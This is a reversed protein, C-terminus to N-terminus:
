VLERLREINTLRITEVQLDKFIAITQEHLDRNAPLPDSIIAGIMPEAGNERVIDYAVWAIHDRGRIIDDRTPISFPLPELAILLHENRPSTIGLDLTNYGHRVRLTPREVIREKPLQWNSLARRVKVRIAARDVVERRAFRIPAVFQEFLEDLSTAPNDTIYARPPTFRVQYAYQNALEELTKRSPEYGGWRSFTRTQGARPFRSKFDTLFASVVSPDFDPAVRQLKVKYAHTFRYDAFTGHEDVLVVGLNIAEDRVPHPVLKVVSYYFTQAQM